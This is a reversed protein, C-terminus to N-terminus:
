VHVSLHLLVENGLGKLRTDQFLLILAKETKGEMSCLQSILYIICLSLSPCHYSSLDIRRKQACAYCVESSCRFGMREGCLLPSWYILVAHRM